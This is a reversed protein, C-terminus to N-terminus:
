QSLQEVLKIIKKKRQLPYNKNFSEKKLFNLCEEESSLYCNNIIIYDSYYSRRLPKFGLNKLKKILFLDFTEM